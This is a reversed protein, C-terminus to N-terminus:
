FLFRYLPSQRLLTRIEHEARLMRPQEIGGYRHQFAAHPMGEPLNFVAEPLILEPRAKRLVQVVQGPDGGNRALLGLAIGGTDASLDVFSFGSGGPLSDDLEKWLGLARATRQDMFLALSASLTWHKPLDERGHLVVREGSLPCPPTATREGAFRRVRPGDTLLTLAVIAARLDQQDEVDRMALAVLTPYDRSPHVLVHRLLEGYIARAQGIDVRTGPGPSLVTQLGGILRKPLGATLHVDQGVIAFRHIVDGVDRMKQGNGNVLPLAARALLTTVRDPVKWAGLYISLTPAQGDPAAAIGFAINLWSHSAVRRSIRFRMENGILPADARINSKAHGVLRPLAERWGAPISFPVPNVLGTLAEVRSVADMGARVDLADPLGAVPVRPRPEIIIAAAFCFLTVLAIVLGLGINILRRM